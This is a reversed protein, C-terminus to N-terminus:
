LQSDIIEKLHKLKEINKLGPRDEFKSNVDIGFLQPIGMRLVEEINGLSIGGSLFFPKESSYSELVTWDFTQGTGGLKGKVKTDFLFYDVYDEYPKLSEFDFDDKISFVKIVKVGCQQMALCLEPSESGHLQVMTLGYRGIADDMFDQDENVFVGVKEVGDLMKAYGPDLHSGIYRASRVHFIFGIWDPELKLVDDINDPERLGCVKLKIM